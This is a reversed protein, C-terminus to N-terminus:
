LRDTNTDTAGGGLAEDLGCTCPGADLWGPQAPCVHGHQVNCLVERLREIEAAQRELEFACDALWSYGSCSAMARLRPVLETM